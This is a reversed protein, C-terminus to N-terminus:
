NGEVYFRLNATFFITDGLISLDDQDYEKPVGISFDQRRFKGNVTFGPMGFNLPAAFGNFEVDMKLPQSIGKIIMDGLLTFQNGKIHEIKKSVYQAKPFNETDFIGQLNGAMGMNPMKVTRIDAFASVTVDTFDKRQGEMIIEFSQIWGIVDYVETHRTRFQISSHTTDAIWKLSKAFAYENSKELNNNNKKSSVVSENRSEISPKNQSFCGFFGVFFILALKKFIM